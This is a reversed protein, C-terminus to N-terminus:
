QALLGNPEILIRLVRHRDFAVGVLAARPLVVDRETRATRGRYLRIQGRMADASGPHPGDGVALFPRDRHTVVDGAPRLVTARLRHQIGPGHGPVLATLRPLSSPGRGELRRTERRRLTLRSNRMGLLRQPRRRSAHPWSPADFNPRLLPLLHAIKLAQYELRPM